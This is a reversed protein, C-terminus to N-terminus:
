LGCGLAGAHCLSPHMELQGGLLKKNVFIFYFQICNSTSVKMKVTKYINNKVTILLFLYNVLLM